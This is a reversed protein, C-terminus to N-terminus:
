LKVASEVSFIVEHIRASCWLVQTEVPASDSQPSQKSVQYDTPLAFLANLITKLCSQAHEFFEILDQDTADPEIHLQDLAALAGLAQRHGSNTIVRGLLERESVLWVSLRYLANEAHSFCPASLDPNVITTLNM